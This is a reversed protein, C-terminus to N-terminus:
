NEFKIETDRDGLIKEYYDIDITEADSIAKKFEAIVQKKRQDDAIKADNEPNDSSQEDDPEDESKKGDNEPHDSPQEDDESQSDEMYKKILDDAVDIYKNFKDLEKEFWKRDVLRDRATTFSPLKRELYHAVDELLTQKKTKGLAMEYFYDLFIDDNIQSKEVPGLYSIIRGNYM